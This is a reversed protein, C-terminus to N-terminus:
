KGKSQHFIPGSSSRLDGSEVRPKKRSRGNKVIGVTTDITMADGITSTDPQVPGVMPSDGINRAMRHIGLLRNRLEDLAWSMARWPSDDSGSYRGGNVVITARWRDGPMPKSNQGWAGYEMIIDMSEPM